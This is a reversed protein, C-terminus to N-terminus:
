EYAWALWNACEKEANQCMECKEETPKCEQVELFELTRVDRPAAGPATARKTMGLSRAVWLYYRGPELKRGAPVATVVHFDMWYHSFLVAMDGPLSQRFPLAIAVVQGKHWNPDREYFLAGWNALAVVGGYRQKLAEFRQKSEAARQQRDQALSPPAGLAAMVILSVAALARRPMSLLGM